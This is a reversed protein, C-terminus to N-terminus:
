TVPLQPFHKIMGDEIFEKMRVVMQRNSIEKPLNHYEL